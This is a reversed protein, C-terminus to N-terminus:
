RTYRSSKKAEVSYQTVITRQGIWQQIQDKTMETEQELQRVKGSLRLILDDIQDITPIETM